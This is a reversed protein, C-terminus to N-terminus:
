LTSVVFDEQQKTALDHGVSTRHRPSYGVLSRQGRSKGSVFEQTSQWKRPSRGSGAILGIDGVNAPLNM